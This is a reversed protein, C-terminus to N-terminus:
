IHKTGRPQSSVALFMSILVLLSGFLELPSFIEGLLLFALLLTFVPELTSILTARSAGIKQVGKLFLVVSLVTNLIAMAFGITLQELNLSYVFSFDRYLVFLVVIAILAFTNTLTLPSIRSVNMQAILSYITYCVSCLIILLLGRPSLNIAGSTLGSILGVGTIALLLGLVLNLNLKEKFLPLAAVAVLIPHSFFIVIALGASLYCLAYFFLLGQTIMLIGQIIALPSKNLISKRKVLRLYLSLIIFTFIYRILLINDPQLGTSYAFKTLIPLTAYVLASLCIYISGKVQDSLNKLM